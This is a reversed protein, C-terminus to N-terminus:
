TESDDEDDDDEDAADEDEPLLVLRRADESAELAHDGRDCLHRTPARWERDGCSVEDDAVDHLEGSAHLHGGVHAEGGHAAELHVVRHQRALRLGHAEDGLRLHAAQPHPSASPLLGHSPSLQGGAAAAASCAPTLTDSSARLMAKMSAATVSPEPVATTTATPSRQWIPRMASIAAAGALVVVRCASRFRKTAM